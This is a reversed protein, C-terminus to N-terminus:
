RNRGRFRGYHLRGHKTRGSEVGDSRCCSGSPDVTKEDKREAKELLFCRRKRPALDIVGSELLSAVKDADENVFVGVSRIASDLNRKLLAATEPDVYRKSERAFVFGIMDPKWQNVIKIEEMKRLGCLKIKTM